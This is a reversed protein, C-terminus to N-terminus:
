CESQKAITTVDTVCDAIGIHAIVIITIIIIIGNKNLPLMKFVM